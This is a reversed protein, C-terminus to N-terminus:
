DEGRDIDALICRALAVVGEALQANSITKNLTPSGLMGSMITAAMTALLERKKDALIADSTEQVLKRMGEVDSGFPVKPRVYVADEGGMGRLRDVVFNVLTGSRLGSVEEAVRIIDADSVLGPLELEFARSRGAHTVTLTTSM